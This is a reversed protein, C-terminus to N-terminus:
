QELWGLWKLRSFNSRPFTTWRVLFSGPLLARCHLSDNVTLQNIHPCLRTYMYMHTHSWSGGLSPQVYLPTTILSKISGWVWVVLGPVQVPKPMLILCHWFIYDNAFSWGHQAKEPAKWQLNLDNIKHTYTLSLGTDESERSVMSRFHPDLTVSPVWTMVKSLNKSPLLFFSFPLFCNRVAIPQGTLNALLWVWFGIIIVSPAHMTDTLSLRSYVYM